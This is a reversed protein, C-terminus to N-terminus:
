AINIQILSIGRHLFFMPMYFGTVYADIKLVRLLGTHGAIMMIIGIGKLVDIYSQRYNETIRSKMNIFKKVM